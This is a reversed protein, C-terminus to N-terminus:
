LERAPEKELLALCEVHYTQPYFDFPTVQKLRYGGAMLRRLDRALTSPDSSLYALNPIALDILADLVSHEIGSRPPSILALDAQPRLAALSQHVPGQYLDLNDFEDLNVAFDGCAAEEPEFAAIHAVKSALFASIVGAGSYIDLVRSQPTLPLNALLHQVLAETQATNVEFFSGASVRFPRGLVETVTFEEGAIVIPGLPTLYVASLPLDLEVEPPQEELSRLVMLVDEGAGLRLEVQDLGPIPELELRPWLDALPEELLHCEAIPLVSHGSTASYGLRGDDAQLFTVANRYNWAAPSPVVPAVPPTEIGALRQLQEIVVARKIELQRPYDMHQYHCGGCATFHKCRPTIREPAAEILEEIVGRAHGRKEDTLRVRAKEGPLGFPVFVARGDPLRGMADGGYVLSTFQVEVTGM